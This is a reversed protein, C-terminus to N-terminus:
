SSHQLDGNNFAQENLALRRIRNHQPRSLATQQIFEVTKDRLVSVGSISITESSTPDSPLYYLHHSGANSSGRVSFALVESVSDSAEAAVLESLDSCYNHLLATAMVAKSANRLNLQIPSKLFRWKNSLRGFAQEIKIRLQSVFFDYNDSASNKGRVGGIPTLMHESPTYADGILYRNDSLRDVYSALQTRSFANVDSSSGPAAVAFFIFRCEHDCVAQINLGMHYYHGSFYARVNGAERRSPTKIKVLMGDVCGVC